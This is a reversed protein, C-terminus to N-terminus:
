PSSLCLTLSLSRHHAHARHHARGISVEVAMERGRGIEKTAEKLQQLVLVRADEYCQHVWTCQLIDTGVHLCCM